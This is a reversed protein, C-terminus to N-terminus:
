WGVGEVWVVFDSFQHRSGVWFDVCIGSFSFCCVVMCLVELVEMHAVGRFSSGVGSHIWAGYWLVWLKWGIQCGLYRFGCIRM